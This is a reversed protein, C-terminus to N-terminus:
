RAEACLEASAQPIDLDDVLDYADLTVTSAHVSPPLMNKGLDPYALYPNSRTGPGAAPLSTSAHPDLYDQDEAPFTQQEQIWKNLMSSRRKRPQLFIPTVGFPDDEPKSYPQDAAMITVTSASSTLTRQRLETVLFHCVLYRRSPSTPPEVALEYYPHHAFPYFTCCRLHEIQYVWGINVAM